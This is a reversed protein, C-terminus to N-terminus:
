YLIRSFYRNPHWQRIIRSDILTQIQGLTALTQGAVTNSDMEIWVPGNPITSVRSQPQLSWVYDNWLCSSVSSHNKFPLHSFFFHNQPTQVQSSTMKCEHQMWGSSHFKQLKPNLTKSRRPYGETGRERHFPFVHIKNRSIGVKLKPNLIQFNRPPSGRLYFHDLYGLSKGTEHVPKVHHIRLQNVTATKSWSSIQSTQHLQLPLADVFFTHQISSGLTACGYCTVHFNRKSSCTHEEKSQRPM